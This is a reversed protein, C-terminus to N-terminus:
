IGATNLNGLSVTLFKSKEPDRDDTVVMQVQLHLNYISIKTEKATITGIKLVDVATIGSENAQEKAFLINPQAIFKKDYGQFDYLEAIDILRLTQLNEIGNINLMFWNYTNGDMLVRDLSDKSLVRANNIISAGYYNHDFRYVDDITFSYRLNIEGIIDRLKPYFHFSNYARLAVAFNLTFVIAHLPTDFIQFGGDGTSIFHSEFTKHTYKQFLFPNGEICFGITENYLMKFILPVLAQQLTPYGSYKYIDIGLVTKQSLNDEDIYRKLANLLDGSDPKKSTREYYDRVDRTNLITMLEDFKIEKLIDNM